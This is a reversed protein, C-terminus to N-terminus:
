TTKVTQSFTNKHIENKYSQKGITNNSQKLTEQLLNANPKLLINTELLLNYKDETEKRLAKLLSIKLNHTKM